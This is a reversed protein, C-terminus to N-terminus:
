LVDATHFVARRAVPCRVVAVAGLRAHPAGAPASVEASDVVIVAEVHRSANQKHRDAVSSARCPYDSSSLAVHKDLDVAVRAWSKVTSAASHHQHILLKSKYMYFFSHNNYIITTFNRTSLLQVLFNELCEKLITCSKLGLDQNWHCVVLHVFSSGLIRQPHALILM